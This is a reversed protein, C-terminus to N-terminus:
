PKKDHFICELKTLDSFFSKKYKDNKAQGNLATKLSRKIQNTPM